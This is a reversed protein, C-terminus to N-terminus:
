VTADLVGAQGIDSAQFLCLDLDAHGGLAIGIVVGFGLTEEFREFALLHIEVVVLGNRFRFRLETVENLINVIDLPKM